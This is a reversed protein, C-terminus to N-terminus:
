RANTEVRLDSYTTDEDEYEINCAEYAQNIVEVFYAFETGTLSFPADLETGTLSFPADLPERVRDLMIHKEILCAEMGVAVPALWVGPSHDSFGVPLAFKRRLRQIQHLNARHGDLPYQSECHMLAVQSGAERLIWASHGVQETQDPNVSMIVPKGTRGVARILDLNGTDFSSIKYAPM